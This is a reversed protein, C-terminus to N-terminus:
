VFYRGTWVSQGQYQEPLTTFQQNGNPLHQQQLQQENQVKLNEISPFDQWGMQKEGQFQVAPVQKGPFPFSVTGTFGNSNSIYHPNAHSPYISGSLVSGKTSSPLQYGDLWSYDDMLTNENFLDLGSISENVPKPPVPNFGPPPGLHRVPRSVPNKRSGALLASSSKVALGGATVGSSAFADIKSPIVIDAAKMQSYFMGSTSVNVSQQSPVSRTVAHPIGTNEQIEINMGHGNDMIRVGKLSNALSTEEETSWNSAHPQLPHLHQPLSSDVSLPIQSSVNIATQQQNNQLPVSVSGGCFQLDGASASLDPMLGEDPPWKSSVVDTRKENVVPKFVIVEDEDEGDMYLQPDPQVVGMTMTQGVQNDEMLGNSKSTGSLMFDNLPLVGIVFKKLSSDYYVSKQDVRVVSALAKGAAIIRKVRAKKEKHGDNGFSHKRSFDLISQAPLLPVFGRLEFDEWLALRNETEGEEYKNMNFFCTGDGDDDLSVASVSLVKNLFYICHSWFNSRVSLQKEDVNSDTAIDPCCALWELFVLIGPLLYSSSPDSLQVSRGIIRGLFEFVAAFANQLLVARQVIEAYTQGENERKVNHVTFIMISILRVIILASEVTDAGLLEEDPGSSLLECFGSSAVTLVEAFTELSTRTFLIGNLRVFRICFSKFAAQVSSVREKVPSAEVNTEKLALKGGGKGRGRGIPQGSSEKSKVDGALQSYSQRNKEFAVILNDRATTFPNDVALSRFYRYVAALEDGSYSALIALQHHPNGSSPLLSTAQLYYSSAAAYERAKSDGDGYLGKYRALDGLYILCRHCSVLGKKVDASKKGEKEMATRNESDESFYGLPLGYKARIKLILDHYFGSAESLFTKLQLRIKKVRDPRAPGKVGQSSNSGASAVAASFHARLEEIRRYHLQWLAYEINHQESFVHDELIIAEYNERIQQWANPDSPIRAQASRRRRNELEVNKEYLHQARERSSPASMKDMELLMM